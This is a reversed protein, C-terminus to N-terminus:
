VRCLLKSAVHLDLGKPDKMYLTTLYPHVNPTDTVFWSRTRKSGNLSSIFKLDHKPLQACMM